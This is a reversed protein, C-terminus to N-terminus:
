ACPVRGQAGYRAGVMPHSLKITAGARAIEFPHGTPSRISAIVDTM